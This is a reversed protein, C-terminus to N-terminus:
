AATTRQFGDPTGMGLQHHGAAARAQVQTVRTVAALGMRRLISHMILPRLGGNEKPIAIIEGRSHGRVVRRPVQGLALDVVLRSFREVGDCTATLVEWHEPRSGLPGPATRRAPRRVARAVHAAMQARRQVGDPSEWYKDLPALKDDAQRQHWGSGPLAAPFLARLEGARDADSVAPKTATVARAARRAQGAHALDEVRAALAAEAERPTRTASAGARDRGETAERWLAAWEGDRAQAIRRTVSQAQSEGPSKSSNLVLTDFFSLKM